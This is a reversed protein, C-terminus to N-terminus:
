ELNCSNQLKFYIDKHFIELEYDKGATKKIQMSWKEKPFILQFIHRM